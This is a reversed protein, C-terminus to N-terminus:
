FTLYIRRLERRQAPRRCVPCETKNGIAKLICTTCFVHGCKTSTLHARPEWCLPCSYKSRADDQASVDKANAPDEIPDEVHGGAGWSNWGHRDATSPPSDAEHEDADEEYDDDEFEDPSGYQEALESVSRMAYASPEPFLTTFHAGSSEGIGNRGTYTYPVWYESVHGVGEDSEEGDDDEDGSNWGVGHYPYSEDEDSDDQAAQWLPSESRHVSAMRLHQDLAQQDGFDRDCTSCYNHASSHRLHSTLAEEHVFRRDCRDCYPHNSSSAVHNRRALDHPFYADCHQCHSLPM